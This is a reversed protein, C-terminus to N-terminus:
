LVAKRRRAEILVILDEFVFTMKTIELGCHAFHREPYRDFSAGFAWKAWPAWLRTLILRVGGRPRRYELIRLTGEAKLVRSLEGIAPAQLEEPLTCFLFSAVVADFSGEPFDLRTVDMEKLRVLAPSHMRRREARLLMAPSMDVGVVESGPPYFPMNRGTGVGADLIRGGLGQFLLPRLSRYRGYEFPLDIIDYFRAIRQYTKRRAGSADSEDSRGM